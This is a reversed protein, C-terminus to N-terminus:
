QLVGLEDFTLFRQASHDHGVRTLMASCLFNTPVWILLSLVTMSAAPCYASQSGRCTLRCM